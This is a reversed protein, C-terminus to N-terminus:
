YNMSPLYDAKHWYDMRKLMLPHSTAMQYAVLAMRRSIAFARNLEDTLPELEFSDGRTEIDRVIDDISGEATDVVALATNSENLFYLHYLANTETDQRLAHENRLIVLHTGKPSKREIYELGLVDILWGITPIIPGDVGTRPLFNYDPEHRLWLVSDDDINPLDNDAVPAPTTAALAAEATRKPNTFTAVKTKAKQPAVTPHMADEMAQQMTNLVNGNSGRFQNMTM